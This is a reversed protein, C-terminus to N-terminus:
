TRGGVEQSVFRLLEPAVPTDGEDEDLAHAVFQYRCDSRTDFKFTNPDAELMAGLRWAVTKPKEHPDEDAPVHLAPGDVTEEVEVEAAFSLAFHGRWGGLSVQPRVPADFLPFGGGDAEAREKLPKGFIVVSSKVLGV